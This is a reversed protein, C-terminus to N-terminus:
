CIFLCLYIGLGFFIKSKLSLYPFVKEAEAKASFSKLLKYYATGLSLCGIGILFVFTYILSSVYRASVFASAVVCICSGLFILRTLNSFFRYSSPFDQERRYVKYYEYGVIPLLLFVVLLRFDYQFLRFCLEIM